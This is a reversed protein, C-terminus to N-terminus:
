QSSATAPSLLPKIEKEFTDKDTFGEHKDVINGTPDIVFTTPIAQIDGYNTSVNEDGMVIAYNIDHAKVFASVAAPGGQDLSVGVVALGQNKYQKQLSIFNPIEERCPPCWTAWFDLIVVKGKFDSLKVSKGNLDKLDWAAAPTPVTAADAHLARPTLSLLVVALVAIVLFSLVLRLRM